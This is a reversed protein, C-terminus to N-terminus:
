LGDRWKLLASEKESASLGPHKVWFDLDPPRPGIRINVPASIAEIKHSLAIEFFEPETLGTYELFLDLSHPRTGEFEAVLKIAEERSIRGNRIDISTLHSTRAYGRKIFKIFDRVGQMYCEIKEYDYGPPVGEVFDGTWGLETKIIKTQERVDWPIYSGLPVSKVGLHKLDKASPYTFPLLDRPEFGDGLRHYMDDASMGLNIIRNFRDEDVLEIESYDYYSTYESSPEGWIVLPVQKEIAVWMPYSFIGTHCHWCFDGKELFSQLMLKQVLKWNPTFILSDVGLSKLVRERNSVLNPRYFGHDFSVVLPKLKLEKVVYYLTWVSDKGGSFPLICDYTGKGRVANAITILEEKRATWDVTEKLDSNLCVSCVGSSDFVITEHTEPLLCRSCRLLNDV